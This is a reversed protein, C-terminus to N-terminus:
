NFRQFKHWHETDRLAKGELKTLILWVDEKVTESLARKDEKGM